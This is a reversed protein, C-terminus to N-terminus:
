NKFLKNLKDSIKELLTKPSASKEMYNDLLKFWMLKVKLDNTKTKVERHPVQNLFIAKNVYAYPKFECAFLYNDAKKRLVTNSICKLVDKKVINKDGLVDERKILNSAGKLSDGTICYDMIIYKKNSSQIKEKTLGKTELFERFKDIYGVKKLDQLYKDKNYEAANSLPINIVNNEGIKYGLVKGLSSLSRGITIVAYNNKGYKRDLSKKLKDTFIDHFEEIEKNQDPNKLRAYEKRLRIKEANTLKKYEDKSFTKLKSFAKNLSLDVVDKKKKIRGCFSFSTNETVSSNKVGYANSIYMNPFFLQMNNYNGFIFYNAIGPL